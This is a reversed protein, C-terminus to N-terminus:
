NRNTETQRVSTGRSDRTVTSSTTRSPRGARRYNLAKIFADIATSAWPLTEKLAILAPGISDYIAAEADAKSLRANDLATAAGARAADAAIKPLMAEAQKTQADVNRAQSDSLNEQAMSQYIAQQQQRLSMASHAAQTAAAARGTRQNQMQATNGAPTSASNGLALIRNLGAAELDKASRQYASNSMREQWQRNERAIQLNAQNASRQGKDGFIGGIIGGIPGLLSSFDFGPKKATVTQPPLQAPPPPGYGYQGAM